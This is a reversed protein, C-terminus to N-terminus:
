NCSSYETGLSNIIPHGNSNRTVSFPEVLQLTPVNPPNSMYLRGNKVAWEGGTGNNYQGAVSGSAGSHYTEAQSGSSWSGDPSFRVRSTKTTGSVKSFSFSCWASSTLLQSLSDKGAAQKKAPASPAEAVAPMVDDDGDEPKPASAPVTKGKGAKGARTLTIPIGSMHLTLSDGSLTFNVRETEGDSTLVLEDGDVGWRLRDEELVGTGDAKLTCFPEGELMWRGALKPDAKPTGALVLVMILPLM